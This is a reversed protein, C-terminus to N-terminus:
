FVVVVEYMTNISMKLLNSNSSSFFDRLQTMEFSVRMYILYLVYSLFCLCSVTVNLFCSWINSEREYDNPAMYSTEFTIETYRSTFRFGEESM